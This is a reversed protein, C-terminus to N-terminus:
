IAAIEVNHSCCYCMSQRFKQEFIAVCNLNPSFVCRVTHVTHFHCRNLRVIKPWFNRSLLTKVLSIVLSNIQRFIKKTIGFKENKWVTTHFNHSNERVCKQSFNRPLLTSILQNSSINKWHYWIKWKEVSHGM